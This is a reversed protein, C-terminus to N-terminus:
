TVTNKVCKQGGILGVNQSFDRKLRNKSVIALGERLQAAPGLFEQVNKLITAKEDDM